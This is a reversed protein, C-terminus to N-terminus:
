QPATKDQVPRASPGGHPRAQDFIPPRFELRPSRCRGCVNGGRGDDVLDTIRECTECFWFGSTAMGWISPRTM